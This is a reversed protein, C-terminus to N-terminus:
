MEHSVGKQLHRLMSERARKIRTRVTNINLMLVEAIQKYSLGEVGRLTICARQGPDLVSLLRELLQFDTRGEAFSGRQEIHKRLKLDDDYSLMDKGQRKSKKATNIATNATIRYVWTKFSSQFMFSNLKRYLKVFVDQTIEKADERNGSIRFAVNFVFSNMRTYIEKFADMDGKAANLIIEREMDRM